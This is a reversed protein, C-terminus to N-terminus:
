GRSSCVIEGSSVSVVIIGSLVYADYWRAKYDYLGAEGGLSAEQRQGTYRFTTPTAGSTYRNEGWAKYRVEASRAGSSNATVATSGLHDGLLWYYTSGGHRM